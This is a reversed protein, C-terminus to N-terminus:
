LISMANGNYKTDKTKQEIAIKKYKVVM